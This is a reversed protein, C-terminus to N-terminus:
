ALLDENTSAPICIVTSTEVDSRLMATKAPKKESIMVERSKPTMTLLWHRICSYLVRLQLHVTVDIHTFYYNSIFSYPMIIIYPYM